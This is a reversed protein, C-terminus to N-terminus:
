ETLAAVLDIRRHNGVTLRAPQRRFGLVLDNVFDFRDDRRGKRFLDGLVRLTSACSVRCNEAQPKFAIKLVMAEARGLGYHCVLIAFVFYQSFIMAFVFFFFRFFYGPWSM